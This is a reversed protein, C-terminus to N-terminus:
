CPVHKTPQSSNAKLLGGSMKMSHVIAANARSMAMMRAQYIRAKEDARPSRGNGLLNRGVLGTLKRDQL